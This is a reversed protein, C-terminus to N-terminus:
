YGEDTVLYYHQQNTSRDEHQITLQLRKVHTYPDFAVIQSDTLTQNRASLQENLFAIVEEESDFSGILDGLNLTPEQEPLEGSTNSIPSEVSESTVNGPVAYLEITM